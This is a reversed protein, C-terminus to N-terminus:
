PVGTVTLIQNKNNSGKVPNLILRKIDANIGYPPDVVALDFYKDSYQKMGEICDINFTESIM